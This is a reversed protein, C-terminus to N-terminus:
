NCQILISKFYQMRFSIHKSYYNVDSLWASWVWLFHLSMLVNQLFDPTIIKLIIKFIKKYYLLSAQCFIIIQIERM